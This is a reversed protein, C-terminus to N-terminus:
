PGRGSAAAGGRPGHRRGSGSRIRRRIRWRAGGRWAEEEGSDAVTTAAAALEWRSGCSGGHGGAAGHHAPAGGRGVLAGLGRGGEECQALRVIDHWGSTPGLWPSPGHRKKNGETFKVLDKSNLTRYRNQSYSQSHDM